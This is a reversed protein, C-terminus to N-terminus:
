LSFLTIHFVNPFLLQCLYKNLCPLSTVVIVFTLFSTVFIVITGPMERFYQELIGNRLAHKWICCLVCIKQVAQQGKKQM